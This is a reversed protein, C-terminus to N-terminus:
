PGGGDISQPPTYISDPFGGDINYDGGGGGSANITLSQAGSLIEINTGAVLSKFPLDVGSKPLALGEGTGVNSSTNSEGVTGTFNVIPNVPDTSDVTIDTGGVVSQVGGSPVTQWTGDDRLFEGTATLPDPVYGTTGPGAFTTIDGPQVASAALPSSVIPNVPDSSDVQIGTGAVVTDVRGGGGGTGAPIWTGSDSLVYGQETGPDPVIGSTGAGSFVPFGNVIWDQLQTYEAATLHYYQNTQGGQLGTLANHPPVDGGPGSGGGGGGSAYIVTDGNLEIKGVDIESGDSLYVTFRGDMDVQLDVISVGDVGREGQPGVPGMPGPNGQPGQPGVPGQKGDKGARGPAGTPGQPGQPGRAGDKGDKGPKGAPGTDGVAGKDGKPGVPGQPGMPGGQRVDIAAIKKELATYVALLAENSAM